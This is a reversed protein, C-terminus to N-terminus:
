FLIRLSLMLVHASTGGLSEKWRGGVVVEEEESMM